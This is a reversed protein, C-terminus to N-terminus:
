EYVSTETINSTVREEDDLHISISLMCANGTVLVNGSHDKYYIKMWVGDVKVSYRVITSINM